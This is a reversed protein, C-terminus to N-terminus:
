TGFVLGNWRDDPGVLDLVSEGEQVANADLGDFSGKCRVKLGALRRSECGSSGGNRRLTVRLVSAASIYAEKVFDSRGSEGM